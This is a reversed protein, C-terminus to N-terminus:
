PPSPQAHIHSMITSNKQLTQQMFTILATTPDVNPNSPSNHSPPTAPTPSTSMSSALSPLTPPSTKTNRSYITNSVPQNPYLCTWVSEKSFPNFSLIDYGAEQYYQTLMILIYRVTVWYQLTLTPVYSSFMHLIGTNAEFAQEPTLDSLITPRAQLAMMGSPVDQASSNSFIHPPIM